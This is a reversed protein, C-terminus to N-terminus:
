NGILGARHLTLAASDFAKFGAENMDKHLKSFAREFHHPLMPALDPSGIAYGMIFLTFLMHHFKLGGEPRKRDFHGDM